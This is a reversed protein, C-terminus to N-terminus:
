KYYPVYQRLPCNRDIYSPTGYNSCTQRKLNILNHSPGQGDSTQKSSSGCACACKNSQKVFKQPKLNEVTPNNDGCTKSANETSSSNNKNQEYGHQVTVKDACSTSVNTDNVDVSKTPSSQETKVSISVPPQGYQAPKDIEITESASVYNDNFPPPVSHYGLSNKQNDKWKM